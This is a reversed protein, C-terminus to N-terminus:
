SSTSASQWVVELSNRQSRPARSTYTTESHLPPEPKRPKSILQVANFGDLAAGNLCGRTDQGEKGGIGYGYETRLVRHKPGRTEKGLTHSEAHSRSLLAM